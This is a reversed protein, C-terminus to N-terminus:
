DAHEEKKIISLISVAGFIILLLAFPINWADSIYDQTFYYIAGLAIVILLVNLGKSVKFM